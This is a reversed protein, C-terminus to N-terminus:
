KIAIISIFFRVPYLKNFYYPINGTSKVHVAKKKEPKRLLSDMSPGIQRRERNDTKTRGKKKPQDSSPQEPFDEPALTDIALSTDIMAGSRMVQHSSPILDIIPKQASLTLSILLLGILSTTRYLVLNNM